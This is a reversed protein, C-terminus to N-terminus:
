VTDLPVNFEVIGYWVMTYVGLKHSDACQSCYTQTVELLDVTKSKFSKSKYLLSVIKLFASYCYSM